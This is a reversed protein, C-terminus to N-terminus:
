IIKNGDIKSPSFFYNSNINYIGSDPHVYGTIIKDLLIEFYLMPIIHDLKYRM